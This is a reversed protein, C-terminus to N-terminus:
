TRRLHAGCHLLGPLPGAANADFALRFDDVQLWPLGLRQGLRMAVTSKGIGSAGGLLLVRWGLAALDFGTQM